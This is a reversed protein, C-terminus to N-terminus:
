EISDLIVRLTMTKGLGVDGVIVALCENGEEIAFMTESAADDVSRHLDFYMEPDPVNDFPPKILGWHTYYREQLSM